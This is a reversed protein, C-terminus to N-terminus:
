DRDGGPFLLGRAMGRLPRPVLRLAEKLGQDFAADEARMAEAVAGDLTELEDPSLQALLPVDQSTTDLREFLDATDTM